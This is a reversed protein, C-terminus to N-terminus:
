LSSLPWRTGEVVVLVLGRESDDVGAGQRQGGQGGAVAEDESGRGEAVGSGNEDGHRGGVDIGADVVVGEVQKGGCVAGGGQGAAQLAM